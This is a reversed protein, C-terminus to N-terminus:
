TTAGALYLPIFDLLFYDFFNMQNYQQFVFDGNITPILIYLLLLFFTRLRAGFMWVKTIHRDWTGINVWLRFVRDYYLRSISHTFFSYRM